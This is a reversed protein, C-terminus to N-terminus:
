EVKPSKRAGRLSYVHEVEFTAARDLIGTEPVLTVLVTEVPPMLIELVSKGIKLTASRGHDTSNCRSLTGWFRM